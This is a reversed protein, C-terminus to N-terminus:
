LGERNCANEAQCEGSMIDVVVALAPNDSSRSWIARTELSPTKPSLRRYVVGPRTLQRMSAPVIAVGLGSSVLGIITQMQVAEQIPNFAVSHEDLYAAIRDFLLPALGRPFGVFSEGALHTARLPRRSDGHARPHDVPLCAVMAETASTRHILDPETDVCLAVGLDIRQSRIAALQETLTLEHLSLRLGPELERIKRVWNPLNGYLATSTFGIEVRGIRGASIEAATSGIDRVRQLVERAESLLYEGAATLRLGARDRILLETGLNAELAQIQRTLPPQTLHLAEAARTFSQHEAVAIFYRLQRLEPQRQM